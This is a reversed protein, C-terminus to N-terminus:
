NRQRNKLQNILCKKKKGTLTIICKGRLVTKASDRLNQCKTSGNENIELKKSKIKTKVM